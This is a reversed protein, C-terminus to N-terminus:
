SACTRLGLIRYLPCFKIAATVILVAGVAIAAYKYTAAEFLPLNTALAVIILALGVLFRLARDITGVNATM